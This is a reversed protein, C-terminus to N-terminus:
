GEEIKTLKARYWALSQVVRAAADRQIDIRPEDSPACRRLENTLRDYESRYFEIDRDIISTM